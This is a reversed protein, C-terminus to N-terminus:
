LSAGTCCAQAQASRRASTACRMLQAGAQKQLNGPYVLTGPVTAVSSPKAGNGFLLTAIGKEQLVSRELACIKDAAPDASGAGCCQYRLLQSSAQLVGEAQCRSPDAIVLRTATTPVPSTGAIGMAAPLLAGAGASKGM